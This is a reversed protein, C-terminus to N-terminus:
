KKYNKKLAEFDIEIFRSKKSFKQTNKNKFYFYIFGGLLVPLSIILVWGVVFFFLVAIACVAVLVFIPLALAGLLALFNKM